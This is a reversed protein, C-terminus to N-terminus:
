VPLGFVLSALIDEVQRAGLDTLAMEAPTKGDLM